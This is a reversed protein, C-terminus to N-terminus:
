TIKLTDETTRSLGSSMVVNTKLLMNRYIRRQRMWKGQANPRNAEM